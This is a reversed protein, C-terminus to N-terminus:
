RRRYHHYKEIGRRHAQDEPYRRPQLYYGKSDNHLYWQRLQYIAKSLLALIALGLFFLLTSM